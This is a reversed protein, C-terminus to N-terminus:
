AQATDDPDGLHQITVTRRTASSKAAEVSTQSAPFAEAIQREVAEAMEALLRKGNAGNAVHVVVSATGDAAMEYIAERNAIVGSDGARSVRRLVHPCLSELSEILKATM